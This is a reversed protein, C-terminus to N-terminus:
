DTVDLQRRLREGFGDESPCRGASYVSSSHHPDAMLLAAQVYLRGRGNVSEMIQVLEKVERHEMRRQSFFM